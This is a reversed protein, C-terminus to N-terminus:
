EADRGTAVPEPEHSRYSFWVVYFPFYCFQRKIGMGVHSNRPHCTAPVSLQGGEGTQRALASGGKKPDQKCM